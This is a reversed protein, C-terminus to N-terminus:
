TWMSLPQPFCVPTPGNVMLYYLSSIHQNEKADKKMFYFIKTSIQILMFYISANDFSGHRFGVSGIWGAISFAHLCIMTQPPQGFLIFMIQQHFQGIGHIVLYLGM